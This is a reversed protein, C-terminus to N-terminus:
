DLHFLVPLIGSAQLREIMEAIPVTALAMIVIAAGIANHVL